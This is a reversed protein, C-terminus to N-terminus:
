GDLRCLPPPTTVNASPWTSACRQTSGRVVGGTVPPMRACQFSEVPLASRAQIRSRVEQGVSLRCYRARDSQQNVLERELRKRSSECCDGGFAASWGVRLRHGRRDAFGTRLFRVPRGRE